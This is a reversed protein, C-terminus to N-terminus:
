RHVCLEDSATSRKFEVEKDAEKVAGATSASVPMTKVNVAVSKCLAVIAPESWVVMVMALLSRGSTPAPGSWVTCSPLVTVRKPVAVSSSPSM